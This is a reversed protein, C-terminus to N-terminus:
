RFTIGRMCMDAPRVRGILHGKLSFEWQWDMQGVDGPVTKACGRRYKKYPGEGAARATHLVKRVIAKKGYAHVM